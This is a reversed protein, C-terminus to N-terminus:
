SSLCRTCSGLIYAQRDRVLWPKRPTTQIRWRDRGHAVGAQVDSDGDPRVAANAIAAPTVVIWDSEMERHSARVAHSSRMEPNNSQPNRRLWIIDNWLVM